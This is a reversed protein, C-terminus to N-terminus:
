VWFNIRLVRAIEGLLHVVPPVRGAQFRAVGSMGPRLREGGDDLLVVVRYLRRLDGESSELAITEVRGRHSRGPDSLARVEVPARTDVMGLLREDLRVEARFSSLDGLEVLTDGAACALGVRERLRPTLVVADVAAVPAFDRLRADHYGEEAAGAAVDGAYWAAASPDRAALAANRGAAAGARAARARGREIEATEGSLLVPATGAPVVDGEDARVEAIVGAERARLVIETGPRLVLNGRVHRPIPALFFALVFAAASVTYWMRRRRFHAAKDLAFFRGFGVLARVYRKMLLVLLAAALLIGLAQLSDVLWRTTFWLVFWLVFVSYLIASVGYLWFIRRERATYVENAHPLRFLARVRNGLHRFADGRLDPMDVHSTLLYYGDYKLLPNMNVLIGSFGSYLALRHAVQNVFLDPSTLYWVFTAFAAILINVVSGALTVAHKHMKNEFFYSETVDCYLCPNFYLLLFGIQYVGGGFHKCALGHGVEHLFVTALLIFWLVAIGVLAQGKIMYLDTLPLAFENAHALSIWTAALFLGAYVFLATKTFLFGLPKVIRGLFKDPNWAPFRIELINATAKRFAQARSVRMKEILLINREWPDEIFHAKRYNEYFSLLAVPTLGENPLREQAIRFLEDLARKGDCISLLTYAIEDITFYEMRIPDKVVYTTRGSFSRRQIILDERLKYPPRDTV